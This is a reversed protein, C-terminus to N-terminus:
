CRDAWFGEPKHFIEFPGEWNELDASKYCDFGEADQSWCTDSRTGFLYYTGNELLIYPDRIYFESAKM